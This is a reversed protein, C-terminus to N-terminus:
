YIQYIHPSQRFLGRLVENREGTGIKNNLYINIIDSSRKRTILMANSISENFQMKNDSAWKEIRALDSNAYVEPEFSTKGQTLIVLNDAFAIVKTHISFELNLVANYLINWFGPGYCSGQPCGMSVKREVKYTNAHFIAVRDSFYIRTLNYLNRSCRQDRLNCLVSPWWAADFAGKVDLSIMIVFNRQQLNVQAFGKAAMAADVTRRQPLFGYQNENLITVTYM